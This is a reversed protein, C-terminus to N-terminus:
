WIAGDGDILLYKGTENKVGLLHFADRYLMRNARVESIVAQALNRGTKFRKLVYHNPGGETDRQKKKIAAFHAM